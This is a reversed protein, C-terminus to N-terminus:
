VLWRGEARRCRTATARDPFVAKTGVSLTCFGITSDGERRGRLLSEM